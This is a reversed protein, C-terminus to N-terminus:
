LNADFLDGLAKGDRRTQYATQQHHGARDLIAKRIGLWNAPYRHKNEARIPM